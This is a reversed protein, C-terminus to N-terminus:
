TGARNFVKGDYEFVADGKPLPVFNGDRTPRLLKGHIRIRLAAGDREATLIPGVGGMDGDGLDQFLAIDGIKKLLKGSLQYVATGFPLDAAFDAVIVVYDNQPADSLVYLKVSEADGAGASEFRIEPVGAAESLLCLRIGHDKASDKAPHKCALVAVDGPLVASAVCDRLGLGRVDRTSKVVPIKTLPRASTAAASGL